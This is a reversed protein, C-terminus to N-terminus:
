QATRPAAGLRRRGVPPAAAPQGPGAGVVPGTGAPRDGRGVARGSRRRAAHGHEHRQDHRLLDPGALLLLRGGRTRGPRGTRRPPRHQPRLLVRGGPPRGARRGGPRGPQEGAGGRFRDGGLRPRRQQGGRRRHAVGPGASPARRGHLRPQAGPHRRGAVDLDGPVRQAGGLRHRRPDGCRHGLGRRQAGQRRPGGGGPRRRVGPVGGRHATRLRHGRLAHRARARGPRVPGPRLLDRHGSARRPRPPRPRGRHRARRGPDRARHAALVRGRHGAAASAAAGETAAGM